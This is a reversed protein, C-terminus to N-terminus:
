SDDFLAIQWRRNIRALRSRTPQAPGDGGGTARGADRECPGVREQDVLRSGFSMYARDECWAPLRTWGDPSNSPSNTIAVSVGYPQGCAWICEQLSDGWAPDGHAAPINRCTGEADDADQYRLKCM